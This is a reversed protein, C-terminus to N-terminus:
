NFIDIKTHQLFFFPLIFFINSLFRSHAVCICTPFRHPDIAVLMTANTAFHCWSNSSYYYNYFTFLRFNANFPLMFFSLILLLICHWLDTFDMPIQKLNMLVRVFLFSFYEGKRRHNRHIYALIESWSVQVIYIITTRKEKSHIRKMHAYCHLQADSRLNNSEFMKMKTKFNRLNSVRENEIWQTMLWRHKTEMANFANNHDVSVPSLSFYIQGPLCAMMMMMACRHYGSNLSSLMGNVSQQNCFYKWNSWQMYMSICHIVVFAATKKKLNFMETTCALTEKGALWVHMEATIPNFHYYAAKTSHVTCNLMVNANDTFANLCFIM